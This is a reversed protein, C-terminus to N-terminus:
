YDRGRMGDHTTLVRWEVAGFPRPLDHIIPDPDRASRAAASGDAMGVNWRDGTQEFMAVDLFLGKAFPFQAEEMRVGAFLRNSAPPDTGVWYEPRAFAAHTLWVYTGVRGDDGPYRENLPLNSLDIGEAALATPWWRSQGRFFSPVGLEWDREPLTGANPNGPVALFPLYGSQAASYQAVGLYCQRIASLSRAEDAYRKSGSLAPLTFAILVAVVAIVVLMEILTFGPSTRARLKGGGAVASRPDVLWVALVLLGANRGLGIAASTRAGALVTTWTGLCGCSPPNDMTLMLVLAASFATLLAAAALAPLRPSRAFALLSLGLTTEVSIVAITTWERVAGLPLGSHALLNMTLADITREFAYVNALKLAATLVFLGGLFWAGIRRWREDSPSPLIIPQPM